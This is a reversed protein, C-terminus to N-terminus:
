SEGAVRRRIFTAQAASVVLLLTAPEPVAATAAAAAPSGLQRQWHLFDAGDVDQDGDADGQTLTVNDIKGFGTKWSTLDAADVIGDGNFDGPIEAVPTLLYGHYEDGILGQGTIQGAENIDSADSLEWGSLPDILSNLDIMGSASTYLFAHTYDSDMEVESAGVVQGSAAVNYAYSNLGGLTALGQM